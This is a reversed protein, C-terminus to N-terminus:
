FNSQAISAIHLISFQETIAWNLAQINNQKGVANKVWPGRRFTPTRRRRWVKLMHLYLIQPGHIQALLASTEIYHTM